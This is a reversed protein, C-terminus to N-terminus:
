GKGILVQRGVIATTLDGAINLADTVTQEWDAFFKYIAVLILITLCFPHVSSM